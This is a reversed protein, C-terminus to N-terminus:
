QHNPQSLRRADQHLHQNCMTWTALIYMWVMQVMQTIIHHGSINLHLNLQDIAQEWLHSVRGHYLQDWGLQTQAM